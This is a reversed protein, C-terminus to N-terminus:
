FDFLERQVGGAAADRPCRPRHPQRRSTGPLGSKRSGHRDAIAVAEERAASQRRLGYLADKAAKISSSEDVVPAPYNRGIVCGAARQIEAPMTWPRALYGQPVRALEPVWRRIYVGEPDHDLAQKSPSYVRLTNIGTTGSQMQMQPWHIGAEFDLFQRALFLGPKRWHLWLPYAAFSVLMARMRFNLWGTAILQRMCADVMPYGTQGACWADFRTRDFHPERLGDHARSFNHFEIEPESELKQMFHCHWRLRSVFGSLGYAFARDAAGGARRRRIAAASAQHARRLSLAGFALYPSLRSSGSEATLPSSIARRYVGGRQTLFSDLVALGAREGAPQIARGHPAIGLDALTPLDALDLRAGRFAAPSAHEPADMRGQWRAAWGARRALRRVVGYQPMEEWVVGHARCWDAVALDRAYTWGPGTEEHSYVHTFGTERRLTDLVARAEGTRVLLPLGRAGLAARLEALCGLAFDLHQPDFEPSALWQPEIVYVALAQAHAAAAALPAHDHLRLDRKLWVLATSM